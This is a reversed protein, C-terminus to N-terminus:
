EFWYRHWLVLNWLNWLKFSNAHRHMPAALVEVAEPRVLERLFASGRLDAILKEMVRPHLMNTASGCFGQKPRNLIEPPLLPAVALRFIHKCTGNSIKWDSPLQMAFEVLQMDLYPVRAEVSTAMAMKDVRMLLLEPLRHKLEIYIMEKLFDKDGCERDAGAYLSRVIEWSSLGNIEASFADNLLWRKETEYFAVAGGWFIQEDDRLRRLFDASRGRSLQIGLSTIPRPVCHRWLSAWRQRQLVSRYGDYGAFIEDSGEGVQVVIVGHERALKSVYYLPVCVPDSLPEDQFYPMREAFQLFMEETVVIEHHNCHFHEAVQRAWNFENSTADEALAVSFTDVPRNMLESMLAVNTSSDVGGSLFVGFPVDSMMREAISQRLLYLLERAAEEETQAPSIAPGVCPTWYCRAIEHGAGDLMLTHAPRLKQIGDFFTRPAPAASLSLYHYLGTIDPRKPVAPHKLLAKIESAFVLREVDRWYYLPKKGIHDRALLLRQQREDWIAFAFMGDLKEVCREGMEEYLHLITETDSRSRYQHGRQELDARLKAHNYIEGNYTIWVSGDENSMPMHGAPSLDVINLRRNALGVNGAPNLWLGADDPGRHSIADRATTLVARDVLGRQNFIIEGNIGCV